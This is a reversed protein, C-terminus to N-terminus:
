SSVGQDTVHKTAPALTIVLDSSRRPTSTGHIRRAYRRFARRGFTPLLRRVPAPLNALELGIVEPDGEYLMMGFGLFMKRRPISSMGQATFEAWEATTIHRAMLPLLHTEEAQLHEFLASCLETLVQALAEGDSSSATTRWTDLTANSQELLGAVTEHQSEMVHVLPALEQPVRELLPAWLLDDEITHHHHLLALFLGVHDAVERTRREDGAVTRRVAAPSLGLERRFNGHAVKMMRVDTLGPGHLQRGDAIQSTM